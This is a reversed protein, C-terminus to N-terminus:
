DFEKDDYTPPDDDDQRFVNWVIFGIIAAVALFIWLVNM